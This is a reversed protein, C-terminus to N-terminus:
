FKPLCPSVVIHVFGEYQVEIDIRDSEDNYYCNMNQSCINKHFLYNAESFRQFNIHNQQFKGCDSISYRRFIGNLLGNSPVKCELRHLM